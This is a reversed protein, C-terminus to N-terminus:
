HPKRTGVLRPSCSAPRGCRVPPKYATSPEVKLPRRLRCSPPHIPGLMLMSRRPFHLVCHQCHLSRSSLLRLPLVSPLFPPVLPLGQKVGQTLRCPLVGVLWPTRAPRVPVSCTRAVQLSCRLAGADDHVDHSSTCFPAIRASCLANGGRGARGASECCEDVCRVSGREEADYIHDDRRSM